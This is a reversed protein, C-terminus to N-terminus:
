LVFSLSYCYDDLISCFQSLDLGESGFGLHRVRTLLGMADPPDRMNTLGTPNLQCMCAAM